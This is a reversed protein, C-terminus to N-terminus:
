SDKSTSLMLLILEITGAAPAGRNREERLRELLEGLEVRERSCAMAGVMRNIGGELVQGGSDYVFVCDDHVFRDVEMPLAPHREQYLAFLLHGLPKELVERAWDYSALPHKELLRAYRARRVDRGDEPTM